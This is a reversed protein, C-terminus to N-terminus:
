SEAVPDKSLREHLDMCFPNQMQHDELSSYVLPLDQLLADYGAESEGAAMNDFM